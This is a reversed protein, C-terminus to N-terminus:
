DVIYCSLRFVESACNKKNNKHVLPCLFESLASDPVMHLFAWDALDCKIFKFISKMDGIQGTKPCPTGTCGWSYTRRLLCALEAPKSNPNEVMQAEDLVVRHWVYEMLPCTRRDVKREKRRSGDRGPKAAYLERRLVGYTTLIVDFDGFSPNEELSNNGQYQYCSLSPARDTIELQWQNLLSKPCVILTSKVFDQNSTHSVKRKESLPNAVILGLIMLTKGLGMEDFLLGGLLSSSTTSFNGFYCYGSKLDFYWRDVLHFLRNPMSIKATERTLMWQIAEKQFNYLTVSLQSYSPLEIEPSSSKTLIQEPIRFSNGYRVTLCWSVFDFGPQTLNQDSLTNKVFFGVNIQEITEEQDALLGFDLYKSLIKLMELSEQNFITIKIGTGTFVLYGDDKDSVILKLIHGPNLKKVKQTSTTARIKVSLCTDLDCHSIKHIISNNSNNAGNYEELFGNLIM